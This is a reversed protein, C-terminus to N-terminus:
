IAACNQLCLGKYKTCERNSCLPWFQVQSIRKHRIFGVKLSSWVHVQKRYIASTPVLSLSSSKQKQSKESTLSFARFNHSMFSPNRLQLQGNLVQLISQKHLLAYWLHTHETKSHWATCWIVIIRLTHRQLSMSKATSLAPFCILTKFSAVLQSIRSSPVFILTQSQCTVIDNRPSHCILDIVSHLDKHSLTKDIYILTALRYLQTFTKMAPSFTELKTQFKWQNSPIILDFPFTNGQHSAGATQIACFQHLTCLHFGSRLTACGASACFSQRSAWSFCCINSHVRQCEIRADGESDWDSYGQLEWLVEKLM